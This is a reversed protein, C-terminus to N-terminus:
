TALAVPKNSDDRLRIAKFHHERGVNPNITKIPTIENNKLNYNYGITILDTEIRVLKGVEKYRSDNEFEEPVILTKLGTTGTTLAFPTPAVYMKRDRIM